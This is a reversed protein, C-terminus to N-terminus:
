GTNPEPADESPAAFNIEILGRSRWIARQGFNINLAGTWANDANSVFTAAVIRDNGLVRYDLELLAEGSFLWGQRPQGHLTYVEIGNVTAVYRDEIGHGERQRSIRLATQEGRRYLFRKAFDSFDDSHVTLCPRPGVMAALVEAQGWFAADAIGLETGVTSREFKQVGSWIRSAVHDSISGSVVEFFNSSAYGMPPVAIESKPINGFRFDELTITADHSKRIAVNRFVPIDGKGSLLSEQVLTELRAIKEPDIARERIRRDRLSTIFARAGSTIERVADTAMRIDIQPNLFKLAAARREDIPDLGKDLSELFGLVSLMTHDGDPLGPEDELYAELRRLIPTVDAHSASATLILAFAISLQSRDHVTSPTYGRGSQVRRESLRDLTAAIDNLLRGHNDLAGYGGSLHMELLRFFVRRFNQEFRPRSLRVEDGELMQRTLLRQAAQVASIESKGTLYWHIMLGAVITAVHAHANELLAGFVAEPTVGEAGGAVVHRATSAWDLAVLSTDPYPRWGIEYRDYARLGTTTPWRLLVDRFRSEAASDGNWVATLLVEATVQLHRLLFSSGTAFQSWHAGPDAINEHERLAPAYQLTNEWASVLSMLVDDYATPEVTGPAEGPAPNARRWAELRYVLIAMLNLVDDGPQSSGYETGHPMLRVTLYSLASIYHSDDHLHKLAADIVDFYVSQWDQHPSRWTVRMRAYSERQGEESVTAYAELLFRHYETLENLAADFRVHSGAQIQRSVNEALEALLVSPTPGQHRM